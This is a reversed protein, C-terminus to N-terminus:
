ELLIKKMSTGSPTTLLLFYIGPSYNSIDLQTPNSQNLLLQGTANFVKVKHIPLSPSHISIVGSTPNPFIHIAELLLDNASTSMGADITLSSIYIDDGTRGGNNNSDNVSLYFTVAGALDAPAQWNVSWSTQAVGDRTHTVYMRDSLSNGTRIQTTTENTLQWSGINNDLSDLAVLQFGNKAEDQLDSLAIMVPYVENAAYNTGGENFSWEITASGQNELVAHCGSRGCTAEGPAGTTQVPGGSTNSLLLLYFFGLGWFISYLLYNKM